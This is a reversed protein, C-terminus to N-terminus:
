GEKPEQAERLMEALGDAISRDRDASAHQYVLAANASSHGLRAMLEKTTAGTRAALTGATHRLDHFRLGELRAERTSPLWVRNRFNNREIPPGDSSTFVYADDGKAVFDAVHARLVDVLTGPLAVTRRGAESKPAGEIIEGSDLQQRKRHVRIVGARLVVDSRRLALLEGQRLGALGATLIMARYREPVAGALKLLEAMTAFRQEDHREVGGRRIRCPNRLIREDDVAQNLVQRLRVYAKAAISRSHNIVLAQYWGRIVEPTLENLALDGLPSVTNDIEPLVHRELQHRYIERTRPALHAQHGLWDRAYTALTTRPRPDPRRCGGHTARRDM